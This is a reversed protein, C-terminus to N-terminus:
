TRNAIKEEWIQLLNNVTNDWSYKTIYERGRTGMIQRLNPDDILQKLKQAFDDCNQPEYLFGNWGDQISDPIGGARPAIAPIGAAFAELVTLGRTEKESTTVHIDCNALLALVNEHPIRGLFYINPTLKGLKKAIEDRMSGDGAIIIAINKFDVKETMEFLANITFQWGKDPTLRGLFVLKVKQAIDSIGYNDEFFQERRLERNFQALDVGLFNGCVVNKIGMRSLKQATLSSSVLTADYQNYIWALPFQFIWKLIIDLWAPPSFYDKGYELFNTHFFSVCPIRNEKAFDVCPIKLFGVFLREPEDVHIIDPQFNQLEELVTQYSKRMVNREFNLGMISDSALSVVKVSPLINGTYDRWNPYIKELSSYDPCLLLVQHGGKSLRHLRNILTVTVGDVVPYFGSSIIAIKM